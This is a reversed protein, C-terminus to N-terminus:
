KKFIELNNINNKNLNLTFINKSIFNNKFNKYILLDDKKIDYNKFNNKKLFDLTINNKKTKRYEAVIIKIGNKKAIESIKYLMWNEVYRGFVRCSLILSDILYFKNNLNKIIQLGTLGHDGFEDKLHMLHISYRKDKNMKSLDSQNYRITRLNFQNTKLCLQESRLINSDNLKSLKPNLKISKLYHIEDINESKKSIFKSMSIYQKKKNLDEKTTNFRFFNYNERLQNPWNSVDDDVDIVKVEPLNKKVINREMPNDDWFVFSDLGLNMERSMQLINAAKNHWNIKALTIDERRLVMNKHKEFVEWVNSENNKSCLCLIIGEMSLKKIVVQFDVYANGVGDQGLTIKKLGDDGIVGGWLTNDCDLVLVKSPPNHLRYLIKYLADTLLHLGKSSLRCKAFYWNRYDFINNSGNFFIINNFNLFYFNSYKLKLNEFKKIILDINKSSNFSRSFKIFNVELENSFSVILINSSNKLKNEILDFIVDFRKKIIKKSKHDHENDILDEYFLALFIINENKKNSFIENYDGMQSFFCNYKNNLEDWASNNPLLFSSSGILVKKKNKM